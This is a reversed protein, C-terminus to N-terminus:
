VFTLDKQTHKKPKIKLKRFGLEIHFTNPNSVPFSPGQGESDGGGPWSCHPLGPRFPEQVEPAACVRLILVTSMHSAPDENFCVQGAM